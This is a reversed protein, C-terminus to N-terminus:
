ARGQRCDMACCTRHSAACRAVVTLVRRLRRLRRNRNLCIESTATATAPPSTSSPGARLAPRTSRVGALALGILLRLWRMSGHATFAAHPQSQQPPPPQLPLPPPQHRSALRTFPRSRHVTCHMIGSSSGGRVTNCTQRQSSPQTIVTAHSGSCRRRHSRLSHRHRTPIRTFRHSPRLSRMTDVVFNRSLLFNSQPATDNRRSITHRARLSVHGLLATM